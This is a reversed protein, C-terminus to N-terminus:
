KNLKIYLALIDALFLFLVIFWIKMRRFLAKNKMVGFVQDYVTLSEDIQDGKGIVDDMLQGQKKIESVAINFNKDTDDMVKLNDNMVRKENDYRKIHNNLIPESSSKDSTSVNDIKILFGLEKEKSSVMNQFIQYQSKIDEIKAKFEGRNKSSILSYEKDIDLIIKKAKNLDEKIKDIQDKTLNKIRLVKNIDTSISNFGKIYSEM